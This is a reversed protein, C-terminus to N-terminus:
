DVQVAIYQTVSQQLDPARNNQLSNKFININLKYLTLKTSNHINSIIVDFMSLSVFSYKTQRNM